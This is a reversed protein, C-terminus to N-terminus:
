SKPLHSSIIGLTWISLSVESPLMALENLTFTLLCPGFAPCLAFNMTSIQAFERRIGETKESLHFALDETLSSTSLPIPFVLFSFYCFLCTHSYSVFPNPFTTHRGPLMSPESSTRSGSNLILWDCQNQTNKKQPSLTPPFNAKVLIM